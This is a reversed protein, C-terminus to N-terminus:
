SFVCVPFQPAEPVLVVRINFIRCLAKLAFGRLDLSPELSSLSELSADYTLSGTRSWAFAGDGERKGPDWFIPTGALGLAFCTSSGDAPQKQLVTGKSLRPLAQM